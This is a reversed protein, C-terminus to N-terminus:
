DGGLSRVWGFDRTAHSRPRCAARESVLVNRSITEPLPEFRGLRYSWHRIEDGYGRRIVLMAHPEFGDQSVMSFGTLDRNSGAVGVRNIVCYPDDGAAAEAAAIVTPPLLLSWLTAGSAAGGLIASLLWVSSVAPAARGARKGLALAWVFALVELVLVGFSMLTAAFAILDAPSSRSPSRAITALFLLGAFMALHVGLTQATWRRRVVLALASLPLAALLLFSFSWVKFSQWGSADKLRGLVPPYTLDFWTAAAVSTFVGILIARVAPVGM